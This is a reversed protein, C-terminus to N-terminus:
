FKYGIKNKDAEGNKKQLPDKRNVLIFYLRNIASLEESVFGEKFIDSYLMIFKKSIIQIKLYKHDDFSNM